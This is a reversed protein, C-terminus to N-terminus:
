LASCYYALESHDAHQGPRTNKDKTNQARRQLKWIGRKRDELASFSYKRNRIFKMLNHTESMRELSHQAWNQM